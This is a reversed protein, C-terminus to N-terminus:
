IFGHTSLWDHSIMMKDVQCELAWIADPASEDLAECVEVLPINGEGLGRHEDKQGHNDHLHVYGIRNKLHRIWAVCDGKSFCSVHGIDLCINLRPDGISDVVEAILEPGTEFVNELHIRLSEPKDQLFEQWFRGCREVWRPPPGTNPIYGHHLVIRNINLDRAVAVAQEFRFRALDRVM